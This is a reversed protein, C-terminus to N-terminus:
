PGFYNKPLYLRLADFCKEFLAQEQDEDLYPLDIHQNLYLVIKTRLAPTLAKQVADIAMGILINQWWIM